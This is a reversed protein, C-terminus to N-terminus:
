QKKPSQCSINIPSFRMLDIKKHTQGLTNSFDSFTNKIILSMQLSGFLSISLECAVNLPATSVSTQIHLIPQNPKKEKFAVNLHFTTRSEQNLNDSAGVIFIVDPVKVRM